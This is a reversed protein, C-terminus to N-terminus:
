KNSQMWIQRSLQRYTEWLFINYYVAATKYIIRM